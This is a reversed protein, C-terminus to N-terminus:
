EELFVMLKVKMLAERLEESFQYVAHNEKLKAEPPEFRELFKILAVDEIATGIKQLRIKQSRNLIRTDFLGFSNM